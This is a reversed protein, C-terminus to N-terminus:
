VMVLTTIINAASMSKKVLMADKRSANKKVIIGNVTLLNKEIKILAKKKM